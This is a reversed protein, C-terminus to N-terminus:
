GADAAALKTTQVITAVARPAPEPIDEVSEVQILADLGAEVEDRSFVGSAVLARLLGQLGDYGHTTADYDLLLKRGRRAVLFVGLAADWGHVVVTSDQLVIQDRSM